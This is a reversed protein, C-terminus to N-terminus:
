LKLKFLNMLLGKYAAFELPNFKLSKLYHDNSKAMNIGRFYYGRNCHTYSLARKVVRDSLIGPHKELFEQMIRDSCRQREELNKSMQGSHGIRYNLLPEDVLEFMYNVSIRLWLDWDIGMKISEDFLYGEEFCKSRVVASSFPIFNDLYLNETVSGSQPRLYKSELTYAFPSGNEDIYKAISYVVGVSSNSFYPMQKELKDKRWIDDADLFAIFEGSSNKIGVNKARAQGSNEQKVYRIRPDPLYKNIVEETIDTSGDNVVIIEINRYTQALVSELCGSLYKGYNYCTIVVSVLSDSKQM